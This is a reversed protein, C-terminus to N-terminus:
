DATYTGQYLRVYQIEVNYDNDEDYNSVKNGFRIRYYGTTTPTFTVVDSGYNLTMPSTQLTTTSAISSIAAANDANSFRCLQLTNKSDEYSFTCNLTYTTGKKLSVYPSYVYTTGNAKTEWQCYGDNFVRNYKTWNSFVYNLGSDVFEWKNGSALESGDYVTKKFLNL